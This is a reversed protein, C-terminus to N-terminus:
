LLMAQSCVTQKMLSGIWQHLTSQFLTCSMCTQMLPFVHYTYAEKSSFFGGILPLISKFYFRFFINDPIDFELIFLAGNKKLIRYFEKLAKDREPINRIGFAITIIEFCNDKFPLSTADGNIFTITSSKKRAIELMNYCFDVGVIKEGTKKEIEISLDGTGCAIDIIKNFKTRKIKNAVSKRWIIDQGLSLFHNLFDYNDAIQSFMKQIQKSKEM